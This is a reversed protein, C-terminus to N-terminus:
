RTKIPYRRTSSGAANPVGVVVGQPHKLLLKDWFSRDLFYSSDFDPSEGGVLMIGAEWARAKPEGYRAKINAIAVTVADEPSLGYAAFQEATLNQMTRKGDIVFRVHMDGILDFWASNITITEGNNLTGTSPGAPTFGFEQKNAGEVERLVLMFNDDPRKPESASATM